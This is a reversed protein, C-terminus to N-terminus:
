PRVSALVTEVNRHVWVPRRRYRTAKNLNNTVHRLWALDGLLSWPPACGRAGPGLCGAAADLLAAEVAGVRVGARLERVARGIQQGHRDARTTLALQALDIAALDDPHTCDWDIIGTVAGARRDVLVNGTWFDGHVRSVL